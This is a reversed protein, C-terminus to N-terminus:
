GQRHSTIKSSSAASANRELVKIFMDFNTVSNSSSTPSHPPTEQPLASASSQPPHSTKDVPHSHTTPQVHMDTSPPMRVALFQTQVATHPIPENRHDNSSLARESQENTRARKLGVDEIPGHGQVGRFSDAFVPNLQPARSSFAKSAFRKREPATAAQLRDFTLEAHREATEPSISSRRM